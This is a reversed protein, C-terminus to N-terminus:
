KPRLRQRQALVVRYDRCPGHRSYIGLVHGQGCQGDSGAGWAFVRGGKSLALTHAAGAAISEIAVNQLGYHRSMVHSNSSGDTMGEVRIWQIIVVDDWARAGGRSCRAM